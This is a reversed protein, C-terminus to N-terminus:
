SFECKHGCSPVLCTIHDRFYKQMHHLHGGHGCGQCWAFLSKVPQKCYTCKSCKLCKSCRRNIFSAKCCTSRLKMQMNSHRDIIRDICVDCGHKCKEDCHKRLYLRDFKGAKERLSSMPFKVTINCAEVYLGQASLLNHYSLLWDKFSLLMEGDSYVNSSSCDPFKLENQLIILASVAFQLQGLREILDKLLSFLFKITFKQGLSQSANPQLSNSQTVLRQNDARVTIPLSSVVYAFKIRSTSDNENDEDEIETHSDEGHSVLLDNKEELMHQTNYPEQVVRRLIVNTRPSPEKNAKTTASFEIEGAETSTESFNHFEPPKISAAQKTDVPRLKQAQVNKESRNASANRSKSISRQSKPFLKALLKWTEAISQMSCASAVQCNLECSIVPEFPNLSYNKLCYEFPNAIQQESAIKVDKIISTSNQDKNTCIEVECLNDFSTFKVNNPVTCTEPILANNFDHHRLTKDGGISLFADKNKDYFCFKSVKRSHGGFSHSPLFPRKINWCLINQDFTSAASVIYDDLSPRWKICDVPLFFKISHQSNRSETTNWVKIYCDRGGSALTDPKNPHWDCCFVPGDHGFFKEAKVPTTFNSLVSLDIVEICNELCAAFVNEKHPNWSVKQVSNRYKLKNCPDPTRLDLLVIEDRASVLLLNRNFPHFSLSSVSREVISDYNKLPSLRGSGFSKIHVHTTSTGLAILSEDVKSWSVDQYTIRRKQDYASSLQLKFSGTSFDYVNLLNNGCVTVSTGNPSCDLSFPEKEVVVSEM